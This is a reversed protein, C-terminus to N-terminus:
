LKWKGHYTPSLMKSAELDELIEETEPNWNITRGTRMAINCLHGVSASRHATECPTISEKGSRISDIFNQYHDDSKYLKKSFKSRDEDFIGEISSEKLGGEQGFGGRAVFIWGDEGIWKTGSPFDSNIHIVMDDKYKAYCNYETPADWLDTKPPFLGKGKVEVPGSNDLGVGWHAIDVHHGVWDLLARGGHAMVWRWNKHVRAPAYPLDNPSGSPGLWRDYNLNSPPDTFEKLHSTKNFDNHGKTLGCEITHVKGIFGNRVLEACQHFHSQSRQWSGTQWILGERKMADVMARGEVLTHSLPKEGYVHIGANGCAIAPIAHWHDPLAIMVADLDGRSLMEEYFTYTACDKNEYFGNVFDRGSNLHEKDVDCIAIIKVGDIHIFQNTNGYGQWGFGIIGMNIHDNPSIRRVGKKSTCNTILNPFIAAGSIAAASKIFNRRSISPLTKLKKKSNM